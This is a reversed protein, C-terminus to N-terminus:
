ESAPETANRRLLHEIGKTLGYTGLGAAAAIPLSRRLFSQRVKKAHRTTYGFHSALDGWGPAHEENHLILDNISRSPATRKQKREELYQLLQPTAGLAAIAPIVEPEKYVGYAGGAMGAGLGGRFLLRTATPNPMVSRYKNTAGVVDYLSKERLFDMPLVRNPVKHPHVLQGTAETMAQSPLTSCVNDKCGAATNMLNKRLNNKFNQKTKPIFMDRLYSKIATPAHYKEKSRRAIREIFLKQQEPTLAQKPRLLMFDEHLLNKSFPHLVEAMQDLSKNKWKSEDFMGASISSARRGRQKAFVPEAHYYDTGSLLGETLKWVGQGWKPKTTILIDGPRSLSELHRGTYRKINPNKYPDKTIPDEGIMGLFPSAAVGGLALGGLLGKHSNKNESDIPKMSYDYPLFLLPRLALV